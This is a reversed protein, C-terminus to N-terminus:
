VVGGTNYAWGIPYFTVPTCEMTTDTGHYWCKAMGAHVVLSGCRGVM